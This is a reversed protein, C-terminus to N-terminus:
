KITAEEALSAASRRERRRRAASWRRRLSVPVDAWDLHAKRATADEFSCAREFEKRWGALLQERETEELAGHEYLYSQQRFYGPWELGLGPADLCWWIQPRKGNNAFLRMVEDRHTEWAQELEATSGFHSGDPGPGLHLEQMQSGTLGDGTITRLRHQRERAQPTIPVLTPQRQVWGLACAVAFPTLEGREIASLFATQNERKLRDVIYAKSTGHPRM